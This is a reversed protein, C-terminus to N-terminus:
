KNLADNIAAIDDASLETRTESDVVITGGDYGSGLLAGNLMIYNWYDISETNNLWSDDAMTQDLVEGTDYNVIILINDDVMGDGDAWTWDAKVLLYHISLKSEGLASAKLEIARAVTFAKAQSADFMKVFADERAAFEESAIYAGLREILFDKMSVSQGDIQIDEVKDGCAALGFCLVAALLICIIKKM